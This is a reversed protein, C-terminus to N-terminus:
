QFEHRFEATVNFNVANPFALSTVPQFPYNVIRVRVTRQNVPAPPYTVEVDATGAGADNIRSRVQARIADENGVIELVAGVRAGDRAANTLNNYLFFARGFDIIGFVLLFLLPAVIAFEIMSAARQESVFRRAMIRIRQYVIVEM